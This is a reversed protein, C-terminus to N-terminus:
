GEGRAAAVTMRAEDVLWSRLQDVAPADAGRDPCVVFYAHGSPVVEDCPAVLRGAAFDEGILHVDAALVGRGAEAARLAMDLVDFSSGREVDFSGGTWGDVFARWDSRDEAGHLLPLGALTAASWPRPHALLLSPACVPTLQEAM